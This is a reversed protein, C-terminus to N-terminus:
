VSIYKITSDSWSIVKGIRQRKARFEPLSLVERLIGPARPTESQKLKVCVLCYRAHAMERKWFHRYNITLFTPQKLQLLYAPIEEDLVRGFPRFDRVSIVAGRYWREIDAVIRAYSIQEDLVIM